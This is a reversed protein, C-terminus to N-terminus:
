HWSLSNEIQENVPHGQSSNGGTMLIFIILKEIADSSLILHLYQKLMSCVDEIMLSFFLAFAGDFIYKNSRFSLPGNRKRREREREFFFFRFV